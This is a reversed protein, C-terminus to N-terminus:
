HSEPFDQSSTSGEILSRVLAHDLRPSTWADRGTRPVSIRGGEKELRVWSSWSSLEVSGREQHFAIDAVDLRRDHDCVRQRPVHDCVATMCFGPRRRPPLLIQVATKERTEEKKSDM